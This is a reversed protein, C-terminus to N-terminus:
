IAGDSHHGTTGSRGWLDCSSRGYWKLIPLCHGKLFSLCNLFADDFGACNYAKLILSAPLSQCPLIKLRTHSWQRCQVWFSRKDSPFTVFEMGHWAYACNCLMTLHSILFFSRVDTARDHIALTQKKGLFVPIQFALEFTAACSHWTTNWTKVHWSLFDISYLLNKSLQYYCRSLTAPLCRWTKPWGLVSRVTETPITKFHRAINRFCATLQVSFITSSRSVLTRTIITLFLLCSEMNFFWKLGLVSCFQTFWLITVCQLVGTELCTELSAWASIKLNIV